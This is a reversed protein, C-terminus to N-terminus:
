WSLRQYGNPRQDERSYTRYMSWRVLKQCPEGSLALLAAHTCVCWQERQWGSVDIQDKGAYVRDRLCSRPMQLAGVDSDVGKRRSKDLRAHCSRDEVVCALAASDVPYPLQIWQTAITDCLTGERIEIQLKAVSTNFVSTAFAASKRAEPGHDKSSDLLISIM